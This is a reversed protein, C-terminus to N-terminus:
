SYLYEFPNAAPNQMFSLETISLGNLNSVHGVRQFHISLPVKMIVLYFFIQALEHM